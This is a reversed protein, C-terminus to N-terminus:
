FNGQLFIYEEWIVMNSKKRARTCHVTFLFAQESKGKKNNWKKKVTTTCRTLQLNHRSGHFSYHSTAFTCLPSNM